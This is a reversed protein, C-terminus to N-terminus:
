PTAGAALRRDRHFEAALREELAEPHMVVASPPIEGPGRAAIRLGIGAFWGALEAFTEDCDGACDAVLAEALTRGRPAFFAGESDIAVIPPPDAREDPHLWYGYVGPGLTAGTVASVVPFLHRLMEDFCGAYEGFVPHGSGPGLVDIELQYPLDAERGPAAWVAALRLLEDPVPRDGLWRRAWEVYEHEGPTRLVAEGDRAVVDM